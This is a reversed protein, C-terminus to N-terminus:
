SLLNINEELYGVLYRIHQVSLAKTYTLEKEGRRLGRTREVHDEAAEKTGYVAVYVKRRREDRRNDKCQTNAVTIGRQSIPVLGTYCEKQTDSDRHKKLRHIYSIGNLCLEERIERIMAMGPIREYKKCSGSVVMQHDHMQDKKSTYGPCLVYMDKHLDKICEMSWRLSYLSLFESQNSGPDTYELLGRERHYKVITPYNSNNSSLRLNLLSISLDDDYGEQENSSSSSSSTDNNWTTNNNETSLNGKQSKINM